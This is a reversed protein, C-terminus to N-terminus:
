VIPLGILCAVAIPPLAPMPKGKLFTAQIWYAAVLGLLAFAAIIVSPSRGSAFYVSSILLLPFGIDGGGLISYKRDEPNGEVAFSSQRLNSNWEATLRPIFFAPLVNLESLKNTLWIMYGFRVALFDYVALILFLIMVTWPSIMHGFVAALSVLAIVMASDHLWVRPMLFWALAIAAAIAITIGLPLWLVLVIFTGWGFLSSLILRAVSRLASIPILFLVIGLVATVAFFYILIPGLSSSAPADIQAGSSSTGQQPWLSITQSPQTPFSIQHDELFEDEHYIVCFTIIQAVIFILISWYVANLRTLRKVKM